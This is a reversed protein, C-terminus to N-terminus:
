FINILVVLRRYGKFLEILLVLCWDVFWDVYWDVIGILQLLDAIIVQPLYKTVPIM